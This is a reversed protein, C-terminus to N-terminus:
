KKTAKIYAPTLILAQLVEALLTFAKAEAVLFDPDRLPDSMSAPRQNAQERWMAQQTAMDWAM